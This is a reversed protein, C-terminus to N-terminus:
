ALELREGSKLNLYCGVFSVVPRRSSFLVRLGHERPSKSLGMKKSFYDQCLIKRRPESSDRQFWQYDPLLITM